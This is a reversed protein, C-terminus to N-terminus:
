AALLLALDDDNVRATAAWSAAPQVFTVDIDTAPIVVPKQTLSRRILVPGVRHGGEASVPVDISADWTAAQQEFSATSTRDSTQNVSADWSGAAQTWTGTSAFTEAVISDWAAAAQSFSGTASFAESAVAAWTAAAQTITATSSFTEAASADWGGAAQTFTATFEFSAAASQQTLLIQPGQV